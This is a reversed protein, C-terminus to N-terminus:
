ALLYIASVVIVAGILAIISIILYKKSDFAHQIKSFVKCIVNYYTRFTNFKKQFITDFAKDEKRRRRHKAIFTQYIFLVFCGISTLCGFLAGIFGLLSTGFEIYSIHSVFASGASIYLGAIPNHTFNPMINKICKM